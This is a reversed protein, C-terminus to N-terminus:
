KKSRNNLLTLIFKEFSEFNKGIFIGCCFIGIVSVMTIICEIIM